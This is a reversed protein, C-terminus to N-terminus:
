ENKDLEDREKMVILAQNIKEGLYKEFGDYDDELDNICEYDFEIVSKGKESVVKIDNIKYQVGRYKGESVIIYGEKDDKM